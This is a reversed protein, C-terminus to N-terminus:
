CRPNAITRSLAGPPGKVEVLNDKINVTVERPIVIPNKGMRSM